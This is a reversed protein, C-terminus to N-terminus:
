IDTGSQADAPTDPCEAGETDGSVSMSLYPLSTQPVGVSETYRLISLVLKCQLYDCVNDPTHM